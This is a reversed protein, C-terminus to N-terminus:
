LVVAGGDELCLTIAETIRQMLEDLTQAQTYCGPIAPVSAVFCGAEDREVVVMYDNAM